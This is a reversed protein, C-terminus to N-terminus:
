LPQNYEKFVPKNDELLLVPEVFPALRSLFNLLSMIPSAYFFKVKHNYHWLQDAYQYIEFTSDGINNGDRDFGAYKDWYNYEIINFSTIQGRSSKVIDDINANITNNTITNNKIIAHFHIAEKNYSINNNKIYRKMGTETAKSDIYIGQANYSIINDQLLFNSVEKVLIGIGAAGISSKISNNIVKTNETGMIMVSVSNYKFDNNKLLNNKSHSIHLAFRSNKFSNNKIINNNSYTLTVDRVSDIINNKFINNHSYWIKIADGRLSISNKKSTIYNNTILSNKVMVMDIGYLSDLIKCSNIECNKSRNITIASDLKHMENGSNIITLNELTVNSSNITVVSGSGNADLIVGDKKGIITIPKNIIINGIYTAPSLKITAGFPANDIADQLPNAELLSIGFIFILLLKIFDIFKKWLILM